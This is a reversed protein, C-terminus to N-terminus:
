QATKKNTVEEKEKRESIWYTHERSIFAEVRQIFLGKRDKPDKYENIGAQYYYIEKRLVECTTRYNIWNEQYKFTKLIATGVAVLFSVIVAALKEWETGLLILIPTMASFVIASGQFIVYIKKSKVAKRDYWEIQNYYRNTLYEKFMEDDM